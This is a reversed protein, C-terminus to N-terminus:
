VTMKGARRHAANRIDGRGGRREMASLNAVQSLNHRTVSLETIAAWQFVPLPSQRRQARDMYLLWVEFAATTLTRPAPSECSAVLSRFPYCRRRGVEAVPVM